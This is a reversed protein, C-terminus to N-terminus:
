RIQDLADKVEYIFQLRSLWCGLWFDGVFIM